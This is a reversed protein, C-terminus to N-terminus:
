IRMEGDSKIDLCALGFATIYVSYNRSNNVQRIFSAIILKNILRGCTSRSVNLYESIEGTKIASIQSNAEKNYLYALIKVENLSLQNVVEYFYEKYYDNM